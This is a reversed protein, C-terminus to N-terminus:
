ELELVFRNINRKRNEKKEEKEEKKSSLSDKKGEFYEYKKREM